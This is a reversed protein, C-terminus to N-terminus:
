MFEWRTHLILLVNLIMQHEMVIHHHLFHHLKIDLLHMIHMNWSEWSNFQMLDMSKLMHFFKKQLNYTHMRPEPGAMGIHCEYILFACNTRPEPYPHDFVFPEPPNWFIGDFNYNDPNQYTFNIWAPVSFFQILSIKQIRIMEIKM